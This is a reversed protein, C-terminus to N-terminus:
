LVKGAGSEGSIVVSQDMRDDNMKKLANYGVGFVHPPLAASGEIRYRDLTEPSYLDRIKKFPNVAILVTSSIRTYILDKKFRIRLNHLITMENLNSMNILDDISYDRAEADCVEVLASQKASLQRPIEEGTDDNLIAVTTATGKTFTTKVLAPM